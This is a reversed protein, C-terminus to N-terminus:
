RHLLYASCTKEKLNEPRLNNYIDSIVFFQECYTCIMACCASHGADM